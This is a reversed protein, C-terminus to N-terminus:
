GTLGDGVKACLEMENAVVSKLILTLTIARQAYDSRPDGPRM